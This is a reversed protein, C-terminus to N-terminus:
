AAPRVMEGELSANHQAVRKAVFKMAREHCSAPLKDAVLGFVYEVTVAGGLVPKCVITEIEEDTLEPKTAPVSNKLADIVMEDTVRSHKQAEFLFDRALAMTTKAGTVARLDNVGLLNATKRLADRWQSPDKGTAELVKVMTEQTMAYAKIM